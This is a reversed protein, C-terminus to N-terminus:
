TTAGRAVLALMRLRIAPECPVYKTGLAQAVLEDFDDAIEVLERVVLDGRVPLARVEELLEELTM